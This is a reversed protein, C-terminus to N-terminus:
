KPAGKKSCLTKLVVTRIYEQMSIGSLACHAKLRRREEETFRVHIMRDKERPRDKMNYIYGCYRGIDVRKQRNDTSKLFPTCPRSRVGLGTRAQSISQPELFCGNAAVRTKESRNRFNMKGVLQKSFLSKALPYSPLQYSTIPLQYPVSLEDRLEMVISDSEFTM